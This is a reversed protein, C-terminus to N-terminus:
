VQVRKEIIKNGIYWYLTIVEQNISLAAKLRAGRIQNKLDNILSKYEPSPKFLTNNNDAM